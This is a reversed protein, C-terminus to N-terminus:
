KDGGLRGTIALINLLTQIDYLSYRPNANRYLIEVPNTNNFTGPLRMFQSKKIAKLDSGIMRAIINTVKLITGIDKTPQLLIYGHIHNGSSIIYNPLLEVERFKDFVQDCSFDPYSSIINDMDFALCRFTDYEIVNENSITRSSVGFYIDNEANQIIESSVLDDISKFFTWDKYVMRGNSHPRVEIYQSDDLEFLDHLFIELDNM